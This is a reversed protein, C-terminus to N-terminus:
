PLGPAFGLMRLRKAHTVEPSRPIRPIPAIRVKSPRVTCPVWAIPFGCEFHGSRFHLTHPARSRAQWACTLPSWAQQAPTFGKGVMLLVKFASLDHTMQVNTSGWAYGSADAIQELPRSGDIAAAEDLGYFDPSARM